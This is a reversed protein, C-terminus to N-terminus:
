EKAVDRKMRNVFIDVVWESNNWYMEWFTPAVIGPGPKDFVNVVDTKWGKGAAYALASSFVEQTMTKRWAATDGSFGPGSLTGLGIATAFGTFRKKMGGTTAAYYAKLNETLTKSSDLALSYADANGAMDEASAMAHSGDYYSDLLSSRVMATDRFSAKSGHIYEAVVSGLDGIFTTAEVNSRLKIMGAALSIAAPHRAADAGALMHGIDVPKGGIPLVQHKRLYAVSGSLASTSWSAPLKTGAAGPILINWVGGGVVAGAYTKASSPSDYYLKRFATVRDTFGYGDAIAAEELASFQLLYSDFDIGAGSALAPGYVQRQLLTGGRKNVHAPEHAPLPRSTANAPASTITPAVVSSAMREAQHEAPSEPDGLTINESPGESGDRQQVVHALEHALLRRGDGSAPQHAGGGMVVDRGVSYAHAGVAAASLAARTDTHVRIAGFDHGFRPEMFARTAADLPRGPSRLVEHVIPPVADPAASTRRRFASMVNGGM